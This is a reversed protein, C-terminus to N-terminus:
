EKKGGDKLRNELKHDPRVANFASKEAVAGRIDLGMNVGLVMVAFMAKAMNKERKVFDRKRHGEISYSVYGIIQLLYEETTALPEFPVFGPGVALLGAELDLGCGISTDAMRIFADALEVEIQQRHPLKDDMSNTRYGDYAETIETVILGCMGIFDRKGILTEGSEIDTWWGASVAQHHVDRATKVIYDINREFNDM